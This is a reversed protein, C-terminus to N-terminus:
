ESSRVWFRWQGRLIPILPSFDDTWMGVKDNRVLPVWRDRSDTSQKDVFQQRDTDSASKGAKQEFDNSTEQEWNKFDEEIPGLAEATKAIAIWSSASKYSSYWSPNGDTRNRDEDDVPDGRGHMIRAQLGLERCLREVVPELDLYRNSIHVALLGDDELHQFYMTFAEKTLLHAPIADSSFADVLMFGFKRDLRELSVRADGMVFDIKVGQRKADGIYRFHEDTEVVLRRVHTDIEFFTMRQDVQGYASLSGTGLGICAVATNPQDVAQNRATFARFMSGVPGTRHYYTTPDRGPFQMAEGAGAGLVAVANLPNGGNIAWLGRLIDTRERDREQLGHTTTGHVLTTFERKIFHTTQEGRDTKVTEIKYVADDPGQGKPSIFTRSGNEMVRKVTTYNETDHEIQTPFLDSPLIKWRESTDIKLHGFFSRDHITDGGAKYETWFTALWLAAVAAGFRFPREVFFYCIMAPIGFILIQHITLVNINAKFAMDRTIDTSVMDALALMVAFSVILTGLGVGLYHALKARPGSYKWYWAFGGALAVAPLLRLAPPVITQALESGYFSARLSPVYAGLPGLVAYLLLSGGLLIGLTIQYRLDKEFFFVGFLAPVVFLAGATLMYKGNDHVYNAIGGEDQQLFRCLFFVALPALFDLIRTWSGLERDKEEFMSPMLFCAIVLTIPYESTFTFVIPAVLANFLGGLMGGVSM